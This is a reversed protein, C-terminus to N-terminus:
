SYLEVTMLKPKSILPKPSPNLLEWVKEIRMLSDLYLYFGFLYSYARYKLDSSNKKKPTIFSPFLMFNLPKTLLALLFLEAAHMGATTAFSSVFTPSRFSILLKTQFFWVKHFQDLSVSLSDQSIQSVHQTIPFALGFLIFLKM